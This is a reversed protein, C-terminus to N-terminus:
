EDLDADQGITTENLHQRQEERDSQQRKQPGSRANEPPQQGACGQEGETHPADSPSGGREQHEGM